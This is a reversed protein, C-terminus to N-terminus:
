IMEESNAVKIQKISQMGELEEIIQSLGNMVSYVEWEHWISKMDGLDIQLSKIKNRLFKCFSDRTGYIVDYEAETLVYDKSQQMAKLTSTEILVYKSM